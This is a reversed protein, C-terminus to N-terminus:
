RRKESLINLSVLNQMPLVLVSITEGEPVHVAHELPDSGFTAITTTLALREQVGGRIACQAERREITTLTLPYTPLSELIAKLRDRVRQKM